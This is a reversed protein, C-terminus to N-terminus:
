NKLSNLKNQLNNIPILKKNILDTVTKNQLVWDNFYMEKIENLISNVKERNLIQENLLAKVEELKKEWNNIFIPPVTELSNLGTSISNIESILEKKISHILLDNEAIRSIENKM